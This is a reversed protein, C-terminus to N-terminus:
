WLFGTSIKLNDGFIKACARFKFNKFGGNLNLMEEAGSIGITVLPADRIFYIKFVIAHVNKLYM